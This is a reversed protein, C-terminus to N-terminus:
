LGILENDILRTAGIKCAILIYYSNGKDLIEIEQFSKEEVIRIYQLEASDVKSYLGKMGSIIKKTNREGSEIMKVASDLSKRLVLADKREKGSLYVNRSSMALGDIERIIPAVIVKIGFQLDDTMRKIIAAQQADKRGFVAVDPKVCNFLISVITTVGKFHEPRFEGEQKKTIEEVEVYTQYNESYIEKASPFFVADVKKQSLLEIDREFNRPYKSFDENKGFQTPNVFISVVVADCKESAADVLSLHGEHLYGMTPVLGITKNETKLNLSYERMQACTEIIKIQNKM